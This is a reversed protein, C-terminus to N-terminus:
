NDTILLNGAFQNSATASIGSFPNSIVPNGHVTIDAFGVLRRDEQRLDHIPLHLESRPLTNEEEFM